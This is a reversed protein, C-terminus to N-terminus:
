SILCNGTYPTYSPSEVRRIFLCIQARPTHSLCEIWRKDLCIGASPTCYDFSSVSALVPRTLDGGSTRGSLNLCPAHLLFEGGVWSSISIM